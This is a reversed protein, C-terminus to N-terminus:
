ILTKILAFVQDVNPHCEYSPKDELCRILPAIGQVDGWEKVGHKMNSGCFSNCPGKVYFYKYSQSGKRYPIRFEPNIASGLQIINSDTTGALHMLGSDMTVFCISRDILHWCDSISTKNMLNIGNSIQFNFVPKDVNFFGTESSDKGISIVAIGISNLMETLQMWKIADWTRTAWTTVPHILVYKEPLNEISLPTIPQYFCEMEDKALMFGLHIAHYQRIDCRNHKYEIGRENKKGVNYFSNHMIYHDNFYNIDISSIKYSKDVYPNTKFLEPMKSLVVIRREYAEYLKKITPTASILDGLGNCEGLNLCIPKM